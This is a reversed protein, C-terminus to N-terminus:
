SREKFETNKMYDLFEKHGKEYFLDLLYGIVYDMFVKNVGESNTFENNAQAIIKLQDRHSKSISIMTKAEILDWNDAISDIKEMIKM